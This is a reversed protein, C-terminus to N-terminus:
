KKIRELCRSIRQKKTKALLLELIDELDELDPPSMNQIETPLQIILQEGNSLSFIAKIPEKKSM